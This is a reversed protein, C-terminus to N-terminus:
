PADAMEEMVKGALVRVHPEVVITNHAGPVHHVRVPKAFLEEWGWAPRHLLARLSPDAQEAESLVTGTATEEAKLLVADVALRVTPRYFILLAERYVNLLGRLRQVNADLTIWGARRMAAALHHIQEEEDHTRLYADDVEVKRGLMAQAINALELIWDPFERETDIPNHDIVPAATDVVIFRAVTEGQDLLRRTIEFALHSGFSHGLFYYPGRPQAARVGALYREAYLEMSKLPESIGDLGPAQFGILRRQGNMVRGLEMLYLPNGGAGPFVFLPTAARGEALPVTVTQERAPEAERLIAAMGAVTPAQFLTTLPLTRGFAENVATMLNIALLSHGGAAFFDDTVGLGPRGLIQAWVTALREEIEDRPAIREGDAAVADATQGALTKRDVKGNATRPLGDVFRFAAPVMYDPLRRRLSERLNEVAPTPAAAVVFAVLHAREGSGALVVAADAVDDRSRLTTEIEGLEIRFGRLKVQQDVRGLFEFVGDARRRALDGTRYLRDGPRGFPDAVFRDAMLDPRKEYGRALGAGGIFLEGPAGAPVPEMWRDLVVMRTNAIPRGIPVPGADELSTMIKAKVEHLSSWITTETPGYLNWLRGVVGILDAALDGPMAEGGCLARFGKGGRWGAARLMRWTVPTAQMVTARASELLGSLREGNASEDRSAIVVRGGCWLPLFLELAAIDFSVTTVALLIDDEGMGPERAMSAMFNALGRHGVVVGKPRGTSGSTFIVYADGDMEPPAIEAMPDPVIDGALVVPLATEVLSALRRETLLLVAGSDEIMTCLREEPYIPDLPVYAAGAAQVGLLMAPLDVGREVLVAVRDGPVVGATRLKAAVGRIRAALQGFTLIGGPGSVAPRDPHAEAGALIRAHVPRDPIDTLPGAGAAIAAARAAADLLPLREVTLDPNAAAAELLTRLAALWHRITEARFLDSNYELVGTLRGDAEHLTLTLDFKATRTPLDLPEMALGPLDVKAEPLNQLIIMAQFIPGHGLDRAPALAEVLREFPMDQSAYADLATERIRELLGSFTPDDDFRVRLALTNVFFGILSELESRTRNAVPTGIVVDRQGALRGLLVGFAALLVMLLTADRRRSLDKLATTLGAPLDFPEAAGSYTQEHPRPRDTPLTLLPPAGDLMTRWSEILTDLRPGSLTEEQWAAYDGFQIALAPLRSPRGDVAAAYLESFDRAFIGVSWGDSVIHHMTVLLVHDDQALKLLRGRVLPATELDFPLAVENGAHQRVARRATEGALDTLDFEALPFAMPPHVAQIPNGDIVAISTRLAEHRAIVADLAQGLADRDLRGHLRLGGSILYAPSDPELRDLFWLRRQSFSAPLLDVDVMNPAAKELMANGNV